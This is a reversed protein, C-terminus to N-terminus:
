RMASIAKAHMGVYPRLEGAVRRVLELDDIGFARKRDDTFVALVYGVSCKDIEDVPVLIASAYEGAGIKDSENQYLLGGEPARLARLHLAPDFTPPPDPLGCSGLLALEPNFDSRVDISVLYALPLSLTSQLLHIATNFVRDFADIKAPSRVPTSPPPDSIEPTTVFSTLSDAPHQSSSKISAAALEEVSQNLGLKQWEAFRSEMLKRKAELRARYWVQDIWEILSRRGRAEFHCVEIERRAYDALWSLEEHEAETFVERPKIDAV